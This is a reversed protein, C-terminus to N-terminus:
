EFTYEAFRTDVGFRNKGKKRETHIGIGAKRIEHIRSAARYIGYKEYAETSTISGHKAIHDYIMRANPSLKENPNM